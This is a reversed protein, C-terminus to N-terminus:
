CGELVEVVPAEKFRLMGDGTNTVKISFTKNNGFKVYGFDIKDQDVVMKPTGGGTDGSGGQLAFFIAALILVLGGLGLAILPKSIAKKFKSKKKM